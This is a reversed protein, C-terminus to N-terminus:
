YSIPSQDNIFMYSEVDKANSSERSALKSTYKVHLETDKANSSRRSAVKSTYKMHLETDKANSSRRSAVKSTYKMHLETEEIELASDTPCSNEPSNSKIVKKEELLQCEQHRTSHKSNDSTESNDKNCCFIRKFAKRYQTNFLYYIIPNVCSNSFSTYGAVRWIWGPVNVSYRSLVTCLFLPLWCILFVGTTIGLTIAAKTELISPKRNPQASVSLLRIQEEHSHAIRFIKFYTVLTIIIPLLYTICAYGFFYNFNLDVRCKYTDLKIWGIYMPCFSVLASIVWVFLIILGTKVPTMMLEYHLAYKIRLYRDISIACLNLTSAPCSMFDISTYITCFEQGFIWVYRMLAWVLYVSCVVGSALIDAGALSVILFNGPVQKLTKDTCFAICVLLNGGIGLLIIISLITVRSIIDIDSAIINTGVSTNNSSSM